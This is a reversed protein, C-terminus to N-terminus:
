CPNSATGVEALARSRRQAPASRRDRARQNNASRAQGLLSEGPATCGDASPGTASAGTLSVGASGAGAGAGPPSVTSESAITPTHDGDSSEPRLIMSPLPAQLPM